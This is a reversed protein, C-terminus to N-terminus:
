NTFNKLFYIIKKSVLNEIKFDDRNYYEFMNNNNQSEIVVYYMENTNINDIDATSLIKTGKTHEVFYTVFPCGFSYSFNNPEEVSSNFLTYPHIETNEFVNFINIPLTYKNYGFPLYGNPLKFDFVFNIKPIKNLDFNDM